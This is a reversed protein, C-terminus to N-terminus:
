DYSAVSLQFIREGCFNSGIMETVSDSVIAGFSTWIFNTDSYKDSDILM